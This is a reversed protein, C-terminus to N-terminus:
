RKRRRRNVRHEAEDYDIGKTMLDQIEKIKWLMLLYWVFGGILLPFASIILILFIIWFMEAIFPASTLFDKAMNWSIFSVALLFLYSLGIMGVRNLLNDFMVFSAMVIILFIVLIFLISIYIGSTGEQLAVGTQTVEFMGALSGGFGDQCNVGYPYFGTFSFNGGLIDIGWHGDSFYNVEQQLIVEGSSNALFFTCNLTSNDMLVGNSQNYVFFNYQYDQNLKLYYHPSEEIVYGETFQQVTTVPPASYVLSILFLFFFLFSFLKLKKGTKM